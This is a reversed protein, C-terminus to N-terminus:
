DINHNPEPSTRKSGGHGTLKNKLCGSQGPSNIKNCQTRLQFMEILSAEIDEYKVCNNESLFAVIQKPAITISTIKSNGCIRSICKDHSYDKKEGNLNQGKSKLTVSLIKINNELCTKIGLNNNATNTKQCQGCNKIPADEMEIFSSTKKSKGVDKLPINYQSAQEKVNGPKILRNSLHQNCTSLSARHNELSDFERSIVPCNERCPGQNSQPEKVGKDHSAIRRLDGIDKGAYVFRGSCSYLYAVQANITIINFISFLIM